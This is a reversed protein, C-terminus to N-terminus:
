FSLRLAFEFTRPDTAGTVQGFNGTGVATSVATYSLHNPFNFCETRFELNAREALSFNKSLTVDWTAIMPGRFAFPGATGFRGAYLTGGPLPPPTRFASPNLWQIRNTNLYPDGVLDARQVFGGPNAGDVTLAAGPNTGTGAVDTTVYVNLPAGSSYSTIGSLTWAGLAKKYWEDSNQWFPLPYSYSVTLVHPKNFPAPGYDRGINYSDMPIYFADYDDTL